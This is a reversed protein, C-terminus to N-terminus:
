FWKAFGIVLHILLSFLNTVLENMELSFGNSSHRANVGRKHTPVYFLICYELRSKLGTNLNMSIGM